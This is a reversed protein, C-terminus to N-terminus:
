IEYWIIENADLHLAFSSGDGKYVVTDQPEYTNNVVCYKGNKVYAHVEVNYNESFWRHLNEEDHSSWLIARYLLRSNEFSYPLGSIYVSRGEGFDNAALQVEKDVQRIITTEPLAFISKQGEGFDVEGRCDETIFHEHEEWNYKDVNLTFGNEKEVGMVGSLQFYRGERQCATPEGVGIFGGGEYVFRKLATLIKEDAWNEGGSYATYAGGVNLIVDIDKLIDPNERIDDFSIFKVDFPAGSLAEIIGAYSYNQKYYIAHHVMHNGWARMKGWSNLVAVRKVCYPTTGKINNYLTRFEQCVSEVYDIFDPFQMALKLYGGYGIRDIPKRLIARRATVWNVKAEKVPDGGEHFTDPFFYPLFRGETYNVGEIDSILRLTSGNGVSGVVADLGISKFEEMFPETGIWHDGLFMMAEKGCEHTIDVMEKALKAVERRQFRQFDRFEKSPIRYTNNMYGQDIIYEPRFKYGAEAEFQELIYPSVSASYGYWDVYKERALEDFILTFQHFFTTYRIVDIHPNDEIYRRLREMSFKHTKPQRVDFTIQKEVDKWDNTVANYMHVPDWMIYALFSVTYDHFAITEHITVDGTEESYEWQAPPVVEGTTRDIVEWWRTIDDRSNVKLMDPYLHNMLHISLENGAANYFPTMIYMQQIEDPNAKAWTNDKRTTYYTSYVKADVDRLQAPYDTGDCDRIADAGWRKVLELTEPVVDVDTPITVRGKMEAKESM